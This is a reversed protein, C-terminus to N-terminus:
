KGSLTTKAVHRKGSRDEFWASWGEVTTEVVSHGDLIYYGMGMLLYGAKANATHDERGDGERDQRM